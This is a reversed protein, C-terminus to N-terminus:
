GRREIIEKRLWQPIPKKGSSMLRVEELPFGGLLHTFAYVEEDPSKFEFEEEDEEEEEEEEPQQPQQLEAKMDKKGHEYSIISICVTLAQFIEYLSYHECECEQKLFGNVSASLSAIREDNM